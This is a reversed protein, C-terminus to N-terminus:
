GPSPRWAARKGSPATSRWTWTRWYNKWQVFVEGMFGNANMDRDFNWNQYKGAWANIERTYKKVDTDLYQMLAHTAISDTRPLFGVDNIEFGPSLM